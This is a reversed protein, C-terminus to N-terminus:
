KIENTVEEYEDSVKDVHVSYVANKIIQLIHKNTGDGTEIFLSGTEEDIRTINGVIGGITTITAGVTLKNQMEEVQKKQKRNQLISSVIMVIILLAFVVLIIINTPSMGGGSAGEEAMLLFNFM